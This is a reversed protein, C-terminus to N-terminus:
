DVWLIADGLGNQTAYISSVTSFMYRPTRDTFSVAGSGMLNYSRTRLTGVGPVNGGNVLVGIQVSRVKNWDSVNDATRYSTVADGSTDAYGYLVQLREVGAVMLQGAGRWSSAVPDYGRCFLGVVNGVNPALSTDTDIYYYNVTVEGAPVANGTCDERGPPELQVALTDNNAGGESSCNTVTGCAGRLFPALVSGNAPDRAGAMRIDRTLYFTTKRISQQVTLQYENYRSMQLNNLLVKLFTAMILSGLLLAIMVEILTFGRARM